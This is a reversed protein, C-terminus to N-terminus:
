FLSRATYTGQGLTGQVYDGGIHSLGLNTSYHACIQTYMHTHGRSNQCAIFQFFIVAVVSANSSSALCVVINLQACVCRLEVTRDFGNAPGLSRNFATLIDSSASFGFGAM